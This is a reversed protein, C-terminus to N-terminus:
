VCSMIFNTRICQTYIHTPNKQPTYRTIIHKSTNLFILYIFSFYILILKKKLNTNTLLHISADHNLYRAKIRNMRKQRMERLMMVYSDRHSHKIQGEEETLMYDPDRYVHRDSKTFITRCLWLVLWLDCYM